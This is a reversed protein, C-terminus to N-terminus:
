TSIHPSLCVSVTIEHAKKGESSLLICVSRTIVYPITIWRGM